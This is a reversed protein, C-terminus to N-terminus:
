AAGAAVAAGDDGADSVGEGVVAVGVGVGIGVGLTDGVAGTVVTGTTGVAGAGVVGGAGRGVGVRVVGGDGVTASTETRWNPGSRWSTRIVIEGYGPGTWTVRRYPPRPPVTERTDSPQVQWSGIPGITQMPSGASGSRNRTM